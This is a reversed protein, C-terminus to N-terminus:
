VGKHWRQSTEAEFIEVPFCHSFLDFMMLTFDEIATPVHEELSAQCMQWDGMDGTPM